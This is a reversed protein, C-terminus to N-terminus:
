LFYIFCIYIYFCLVSKKPITVNLCCFRFNPICRYSCKPRYRYDKINSLRYGIHQGIFRYGFKYISKSLRILFFTEDNFAVDWVSWCLCGLKFLTLKFFFFIVRGNGFKAMFLRVFLIFYHMFLAFLDNSMMVHTFVWFQAMSSNFPLAMQM